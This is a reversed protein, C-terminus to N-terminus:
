WFEKDNIWNNKVVLYEYTRTVSVKILKLDRLADKPTYQLNSQARHIFEHRQRILREITLYITEKRNGYPKRLVSLVDIQKDVLKFNKGIKSLDQFNMWKALADEVSLNGLSIQVLEDGGIKSSKIAQEKSESYKLLAVFSSRYYDELIAIMHPVMLNASTVLPNLNNLLDFNKNPEAWIGSEQIVTINQNATTWNGEFVVRARICGAEAKEIYRDENKFYRNKGLDSVFYGGLFKRLMRLTKNHIDTDFRSRSNTTRTYARYNQNDDIYIHAFVGTVYKYDNEDYFSYSVGGKSKFFISKTKEYGLLLLIEEINSRSIENSFINEAECSM